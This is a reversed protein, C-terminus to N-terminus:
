LAIGLEINSFISTAADDASTVDFSSDKVPATTPEVYPNGTPGPDDNDMVQMLVGNAPNFEAGEAGDVTLTMTQGKNLFMTEGTSFITGGQITVTGAATCMIGFRESNVITNQKPIFKIEKETLGLDLDANLEAIADYTSDDYLLEGGKLSLPVSPPCSFLVFFDSFRAVFFKPCHNRIIKRRLL